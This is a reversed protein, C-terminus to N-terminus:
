RSEVLCHRECKGSGQDRIGWGARGIRPERRCIDVMFAVENAQYAFDPRNNLPRGRASSKLSIFGKGNCCGTATHTHMFTTHPSQRERLGKRVTSGEAASRVTEDGSM